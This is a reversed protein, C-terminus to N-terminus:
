LIWESYETEIWICVAESEHQECMFENNIGIDTDKADIPILQKCPAHTNTQLVQLVVIEISAM